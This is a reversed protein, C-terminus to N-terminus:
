VKGIRGSLLLLFGSKICGTWSPFTVGNNRQAVNFSCLILHCQQEPLLSAASTSASGFQRLISTFPLAPMAPCVGFSNHWADSELAGACQRRDAQWWYIWGVSSQKSVFFCSFASCVIFRVLLQYFFLGTSSGNQPCLKPKFLWFVLLFVIM